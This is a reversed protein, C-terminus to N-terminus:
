DEEIDITIQDSWLSDKECEDLPFASVDGVFVYLGRHYCRNDIVRASVIRSISSPRKVFYYGERTPINDKKLIINM